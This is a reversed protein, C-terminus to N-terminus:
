ARQGNTSQNLLQSLHPVNGDSSDGEDTTSHSQSLLQSLHPVNGDSSDGEDTTSHLQSLLQSLHPVNGDFCEQVDNSNQEPPLNDSTPHSQSLLQSFHPINGNLSEHHDTSNRGEARSDLSQSQNMLQSLHPVNGVFNEQQETANLDNNKVNSFSLISLNTINGNNRRCTQLNNSDNSRNNFLVFNPLNPSSIREVPNIASTTSNTPNNLQQMLESLHPVNGTSNEGEDNSYRSMTRGSPDTMQSFHPVNRTACEPKGNSSVTGDAVNFISLNPIDGTNSQSNDSYDTGGKFFQFNPVFNHSTPVSSIASTSFDTLNNPQEMLESLHPVNGTSNEVGDISMVSSPMSRSQDTIQSSYQVNRHVCERQGNTSETSDAVNFVSLNPLEGTNSQSKDSSNSGGNFFQFNPVFNHPSDSTQVSIRDVSENMTRSSSSSKNASTLYITANAAHHSSTIGNVHSIQIHSDHHESRRTLDNTTQVPTATVTQSFQPAVEMRILDQESIPRDPMSSRDFIQKSGLNKSSAKHCQNLDMIESTNPYNGNLLANDIGGFDDPLSIDIKAAPGKTPRQPPAESLLNIAVYEAARWLESKVFLQLLHSLTPRIKGSTMWEELFIYASNKLTGGAKEILRIHQINYKPKCDSLQEHHILESPVIQMVKKWAPSSSPVNLIEAIKILEAQSIHRVETRRTFAM